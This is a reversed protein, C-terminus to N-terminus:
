QPYYTVNEGIQGFDIARNDPNNTVRFTNLVAGSDDVIDFATYGSNNTYGLVLSGTYAVSGNSNLAEFSGNGDMVLTSPEGDVSIHWTGATISFDRLQQEYYYDSGPYPMDLSFTVNAPMDNVVLPEGGNMTYYVNNAGTNLIISDRLSDLMFWNMSANDSFYVFFREELARGDYGAVLSSNASWDVYADGSEITANNIFFDLGSELSLADAIAEISLDGDYEFDFEMLQDPHYYSVGNTFNAVITGMGDATNAATGAQSLGMEALSTAVINAILPPDYEDVVLPDVIMVADEIVELLAADQLYTCLVTSVMGAADEVQMKAYYQPLDADIAERIFYAVIQADIVTSGAHEQEYVAAIESLLSGMDNVGNGFIDALTIYDDREVDYNISILDGFMGDDQYSKFHTIVQVYRPTSVPFSITETSANESIRAEFAAQGDSIAQNIAALESATGSFTPVEYTTLETYMRDDFAIQLAQNPTADPEPDLEPEAEPATTAEQPAAEEAPGIVEEATDASDGCAAFTFAALLGMIILLHKKM